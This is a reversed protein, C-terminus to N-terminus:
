VFTLVTRHRNHEDDKGKKSKMQKKQIPASNGTAVNPVLEDTVLKPASKDTVLTPAKLLNVVTPCNPNELRWDPLKATSMRANHEQQKM